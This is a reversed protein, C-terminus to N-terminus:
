LAFPAHTEVCDESLGKEDVHEDPPEKAASCLVDLNDARHIIM